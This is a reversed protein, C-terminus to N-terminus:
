GNFEFHVYSDPSFIFNIYDGGIEDKLEYIDYLVSDHDIYGDLCGFRLHKAGTYECIEYELERFNECDYYEELQEELNEPRWFIASFGNIYAIQQMLYALKEHQTAHDEFGCFGVTDVIITPEYDGKGCYEAIELYSDECTHKGVSVSHSSSSNTEFVNTRIQIM